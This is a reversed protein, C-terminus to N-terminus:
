IVAVTCTSEAKLSVLENGTSKCWAQVDGFFGADTAKIEITQRPQVADLAQKIRMIPGPCQLGCADIKLAAIVPEPKPHVMNQAGSDDVLEEIATTPKAFLGLQAEYTLYGGSLNRCRLGNQSLIRCALYGRLGLPM